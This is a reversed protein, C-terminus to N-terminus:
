GSADPAPPAPGPAETALARGVHTLIPWVVAPDQVIAIIRLRGGCRPCALVDLAFGRPMLAPWPWARPTLPRPSADVEPTNPDAAPRGYRVM